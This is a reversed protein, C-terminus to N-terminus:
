FIRHVIDDPYRRIPSTFHTYTKSALGFHGVNKTDYKAKAMSRLLFMNILEINPNDKNDALWKSITDSEVNDLSTNIKFNMKKAEIAFIKIKQEDPKDHVRYIFPYNKENAYITVAENAAVAFDEIMKQARGHIEKTIEIPEGNENVKIVAKPVNFNIYGRQNKMRSLIDSLELGIDISKKVEPEEKSFDTEKSIYKNVEDYSFRRHSKIICPFVKINSFSGNQDIIMDCSLALREVQPNLSCIDDSLNHPVMPIVRDVLYISCGREIANKDLESQYKVYHTVDAIQVSLLYKGDELKECYFADDFDKSTAPDITVIPKNSLDVRIKREHENIDITIKKAENLVADSFDPEVGNDYVISLIDTGVDGKHGIIRLVSAYANNGEYREIRILVKSGNVLGAYDDLIINLTSKKDDLIIKKEGGTFVAEGVYTDKAHSIVSKVVANELTM